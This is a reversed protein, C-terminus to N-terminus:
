YLYGIIALLASLGSLLSLLQPWLAQKESLGLLLLSAGAWCFNLATIHAMRGPYPSQVHDAFLLQDIGLNCHLLYEILTSLGVAIVVIALGAAMMKSRQTRHSRTVVLLALGACLFGVATNAKMTIQGPIVSLLAGLNWMWGALVSMGLATLLYGGLRPGSIRYSQAPVEMHPM